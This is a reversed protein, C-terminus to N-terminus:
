EHESHCDCGCSAISLKRSRPEKALLSGNCRRHRRLRCWLSALIVTTTDM